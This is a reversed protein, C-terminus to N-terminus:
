NIYPLQFGVKRQVHKKTAPENNFIEALTMPGSAITTKELHNLLQQAKSEPLPGFYYQAILRGERLVAPDINCLDTNFTCVIQTRLCDALIGDSLNLLDSIPSNPNLKRDVLLNEADEIVLVSNPYHILLKAFEPDTLAHAFNSSLYIVRKKLRAVLHRLYTTKGTSPLGHLLVIGKDNQRNLRQIITKDVAVFEDEYYLQISLNTKTIELETFQYKGNSITLINIASKKSKIKEKCTKLAATIMQLYEGTVMEDDFLITCYNYEFYILCGNKLWFGAYELSFKGQHHLDSHYNFSYQIDHDYIKKFKQIAKDIQLRNVVYISPIRKNITLYLEKPRIYDSEFLQSSETVLRTREFLNDM